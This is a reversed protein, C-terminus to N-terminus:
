EEEQQGKGPVTLTDSLKASSVLLDGENVQM